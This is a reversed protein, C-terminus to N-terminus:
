ILASSYEPPVLREAEPTAPINTGEAVVKANLRVANDERLV